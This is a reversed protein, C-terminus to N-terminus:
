SGRLGHWASAPSRPGKLHALERSIHGSDGAQTALGLNGPMMVRLGFEDGDPLAAGDSTSFPENLPPALPVLVLVADDPRRPHDSAQGHLAFDGSCRDVQM